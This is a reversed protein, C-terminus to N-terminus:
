VIINIMIICNIKCSNIDRKEVYLTDCLATDYNM